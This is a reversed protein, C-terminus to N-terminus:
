WRSGSGDGAAVIEWTLGNPDTVYVHLDDVGHTEIWFQEGAAELRDRWRIVEDRSTVSLAVHRIDKPLGEDPRRIGQFWFFDVVIGGPLEFVMLHYEEANWAPAPGSQTHRLRGGLVETYFRTTGAVDFCPFALHDITFM